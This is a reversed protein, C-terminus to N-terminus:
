AQRILTMTTLNGYDTAEVIQWSENPSFDTTQLSMGATDRTITDLPKKFTAAVITPVGLSARLERQLPSGVYESNPILSFRVNSFILVGGNLINGVRDTKFAKMGKNPGFDLITVVPTTNYYSDNPIIIDGARLQTRNGTVKFLEVDSDQTEAWRDGTKQIYYKDNYLTSYTHDAATYDIRGVICPQGYIRGFKAEDKLNIYRSDM